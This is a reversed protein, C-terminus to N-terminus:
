RQNKSHHLEQALYLKTTIDQVWDSMKSIASKERSQKKKTPFGLIGALFVLALPLYKWERLIESPCVFRKHEKLHSTPISQVQIEQNQSSQNNQVKEEISSVQFQGQAPCGREAVGGRVTGLALSLPLIRKLCKGQFNPMLLSTITASFRMSSFNASTVPSTMLYKM